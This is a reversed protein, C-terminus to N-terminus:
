WRADRAADAERLELLEEHADRYSFVVVDRV